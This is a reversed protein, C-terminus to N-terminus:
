VEVSKGGITEIEADKKVRKPQSLQAKLAAIEADKQAIESKFEDRAQIVLNQSVIPSQLNMSLGWLPSVGSLLLAAQNVNFVSPKTMTPDNGVNQKAPYLEVYFKGDKAKKAYGGIILEQANM